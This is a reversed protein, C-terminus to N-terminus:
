QKPQPIDLVGLGLGRAESFLDLAANHSNEKMALDVAAQLSEKASKKDQKEYFIFAAKKYNSIAEQTLGLRGALEAYIFLTDPVFPFKKPQINALKVSKGTNEYAQRYKHELYYAQGLTRYYTEKTVDDDVNKLLGKASELETIINSPQKNKLYTVAIANETNLENTASHVSKWYDRVSFYDILAENIHNLKYNANAREYKCAAIRYRDGTNELDHLASDFYEFSAGVWGNESLTKGMHYKLAALTSGGGPHNDGTLKALAVNYSEIASRIKGTKGYVFFLSAQGAIISLDDNSKVQDSISKIRKITEDNCPLVEYIIAQSLAQLKTFDDTTTDALRLAQAALAASTNMDKQEYASALDMVRRTECIIDKLPCSRKADDIMAIGKELQGIKLYIYAINAKLQSMSLSKENTYFINKDIINLYHLALENRNHQQAYLALFFQVLTLPERTLLAPLTLNQMSPIDRLGVSQSAAVHLTNFNVATIRPSFTAEFGQAGPRAAIVQGWVVLDADAVQGVARAQDPTTVTGVCTKAPVVKIGGPLDAIKWRSSKREAAQYADLMQALTGAYDRGYGVAVPNQSASSFPLVLVKLDPSDAFSASVCEGTNNSTTTSSNIPIQPALKAAVKNKEPNKQDILSPQRADSYHRYAGTGILAAAAALVLCAATAKIKGMTLKIFAARADCTLMNNIGHKALFKIVSDVTTIRSTGGNRGGLYVTGAYVSRARDFFVPSGSAGEPPGGAFQLEELYDMKPTEVFQPMLVNSPWIRLEDANDQAQYGYIFFTHKQIETQLDLTLHQLFFIQGAQVPPHLKVLALDLSPHLYVEKKSINISIAVTDTEVWLQERVKHKAWNKEDKYNEVVVHRCTLVWDPTVIFGTGLFKSSFGLNGGVIRVIHCNSKSKTKTFM